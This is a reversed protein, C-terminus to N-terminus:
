EYTERGVFYLDDDDADDSERIKNPKIIQGKQDKRSILYEKQLLWQESVKVLEGNADGSPNIQVFRNNHMAKIARFRIKTNYNISYIMGRDPQRGDCWSINGNPDLKFDSGEYYEKGHKDIVLNVRIGPYRLVDVQGDQRKIREFFAETFDELEVMTFYQLEVGQMFTGRMSNGDYLGEVFVKKDLEITQLFAWTSLPYRDVFGTGHCIPCDIEHEGGDISKVNPCFSTRFVKVRVGQRHILDDFDQTNFNVAKKVTNRPIATSGTPNWGKQNPFSSTPKPIPM